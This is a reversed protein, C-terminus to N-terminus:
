KKASKLYAEIFGEINGDLVDNIQATEHETRHDKVMQYPQMVYSRIQKGWEATAVEGRVDKEEKAREAEQKQLLKSRLLNLAFEKNQHQSRQTQCQVVIGSPKHKIRVATEVKNVNQGGAGSARYTDTEIDESKIEIDESEPLEPVVDVLAFSTHRMAEADFPSIRVLRHVGSESRLHGYAWRGEVRITTRKIGAESGTERELVEAKWDKKEFFRLYMRELIEAWDQADVGGTGAHVSLIANSKDYKGSFLAYFELERFREELEALNRSILTEMDTDGTENAADKSLSDMDEIEKQISEWKEIEKNLDEAEKSVGVAKEQDDWFGPEAMERKLEEYRAKGENMALVEWLEQFRKKLSDTRKTLNDM